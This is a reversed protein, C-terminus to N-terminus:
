ATPRRSKATAAVAATDVVGIGSPSPWILKNIENMQWRQHGAGLTPGNKLVISVCAAAHDRCYIWGQFRRRLFKM